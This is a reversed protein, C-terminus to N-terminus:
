WPKELDEDVRGRAGFFADRLLFNRIRDVIVSPAASGDDISLWMEDRSALTSSESSDSVATALSAGEDEDRRSADFLANALASSSKSCNAASDVLGCRWPRCHVRGGIKSSSSSQLFQGPLSEQDRRQRRQKMIDGDRRDAREV